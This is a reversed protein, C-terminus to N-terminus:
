ERPIHQYISAMFCVVSQTINLFLLMSSHKRNYALNLRIGDCKERRSTENLIEDTDFGLSIREFFAGFKLFLAGFNLFLAGYYPFLSSFHLFLAGFHLFLAGYHFISCSFPPISCWIPSFYCRLSSTSCSLNLATRKLACKLNPLVKCRYTHRIPHPKRSISMNLIVLSVTVTISSLFILLVFLLL